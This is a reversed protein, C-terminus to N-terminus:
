FHDTVITGEEYTSSLLQNKDWLMSKANGENQGVLALIKRQISYGYGGWVGACFRETLKSGGRLADEVLDPPIQSVPVKRVCSDNLSPHNGPNFKKFYESQFLADNEPGFPEFYCKGTWFQWGGVGVLSAAASFKCLTILRSQTLKTFQMM